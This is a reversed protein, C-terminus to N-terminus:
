ANNPYVDKKYEYANRTGMSRNCDFCMPRLNSPETKGGLARAVVHGCEFSKKTIEAKNCIVCTGSQSKGFAMKWVDKKMAATIPKEDYAAPETMEILKDLCENFYQRRPEHLDKDWLSKFKRGEKAFFQMHSSLVERDYSHHCMHCFLAFIQTVNFEIEDLDKLFEIFDLFKYHFEAFEDDSPYLSSHGTKIRKALDKTDHLLFEVSPSEANKQLLYCRAVWQTWYKKGKTSCHDLFTRMMEEYGYQNLKAMLRCRGVENKLLDSGRVPAGNQLSLFEARRENMTMKSVISTVTITTNNFVKKEDATLYKPEYKREKCWNEVDDTREYFVREHVRTGHEDVSEFDWFVIFEKTSYPLRQLKASKFANLSYLRHQGDMVENEFVDHAPDSAYKGILKDSEHLRYMLVAPIYRRHMISDIFGNMKDPTWSIPRQYEPNFNLTEFYDNNLLDRVQKGCTDYERRSQLSLRNLRSEPASALAVAAAVSSTFLAIPMRKIFTRLFTQKCITLTPSRDEDLCFYFTM